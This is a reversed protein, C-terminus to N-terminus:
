ARDREGEREGATDKKERYESEERQIREQQQTM